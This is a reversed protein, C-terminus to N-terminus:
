SGLFFIFFLVYVKNWSPRKKVNCVCINICTFASMEIIVCV